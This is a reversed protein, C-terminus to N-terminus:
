VSPRTHLGFQHYGGVVLGFALTCWYFGLGHHSPILLGELLVDLIVAAHFALDWRNAFYGARSARALEHGLWVTAALGTLIVAGRGPLCLWLHFILSYGLGLLLTFRWRPWGTAPLASFGAKM